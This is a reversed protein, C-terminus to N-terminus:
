RILGEQERRYPRKIKEAGEVAPDMKRSRLQKEKTKITTKGPTSYIVTNLDDNLHSVSLDFWSDPAIAQSFVEDPETPYRMPGDVEVSRIGAVTDAIPNNM